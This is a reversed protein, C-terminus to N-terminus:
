RDVPDRDLVRQLRDGVIGDAVGCVRKRVIIRRQSIERLEVVVFIEVFCSPFL